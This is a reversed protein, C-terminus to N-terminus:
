NVKTATMRQGNQEAVAGTVNGNADKVFTLEVGDLMFFRDTALPYLRVPRPGLVASSVYLQDAETTITSPPLGSSEYKGVYSRYVAPDVQALTKESPQYDPWGYEHAIARLIENFLGSGRDGNTMVVAGQGTDLSAFMICTFGENAGAHSFNTVQEKGGLWLGMGYGGLQRSLMQRTMEASLIKGSKGRFSQQVEVAFRALDSPTTWLGAAAMEPFTHWRGKIREGAADHGTAAIDELDKRLPQSFASDKMELKGLVVGQMLEPFPTGTVDIM